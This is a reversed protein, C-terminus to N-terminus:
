NHRVVGAGRVGDAADEPSAELVEGPEDVREDRQAGGEGTLEGVGHGGPFAPEHIGLFAGDLVEMAGLGEAVALGGDGLREPGGRALEEIAGIAPVELRGSNRQLM